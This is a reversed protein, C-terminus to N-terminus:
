VRLLISVGLLSSAQCPPLCGRPSLPLLFSILFQPLTIQSPSLSLVTFYFLIFYFLIFYFLIFYFLIFFKLFSGAWHIGRTLPRAVVPFIGRRV